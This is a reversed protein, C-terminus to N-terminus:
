QLTIAIPPMAIGREGFYEVLEVPALRDYIRVSLHRIAALAQNGADAVDGDLVVGVGGAGNDAHDLASPRQLTWIDLENVRMASSGNQRQRSPEQALLSGSGGQCFRRIRLRSEPLKPPEIVVSRSRRVRDLYLRELLQDRRRLDDKSCVKWEASAGTDGRAKLLVAKQILGLQAGYIM